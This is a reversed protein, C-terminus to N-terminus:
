EELKRKLINNERELKEMHLLDRLHRDELTEIKRM